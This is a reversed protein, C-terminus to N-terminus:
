DAARNPCYAHEVPEQGKGYRGHIGLPDPKKSAAVNMFQGYMPNERSHSRTM